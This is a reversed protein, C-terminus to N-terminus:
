PARSQITGLALGLGMKKIIEREREKEKRQGHGYITLRGIAKVSNKNNIQQVRNRCRPYVTRIKYSKIIKIYGEPLSFIGRINDEHVSKEKINRRM